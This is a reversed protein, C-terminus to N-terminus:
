VWWVLLWWRFRWCFLLYVGVVTMWWLYCVLWVLLCDVVVVLCLCVFMFLLCFWWDFSIVYSIVLGCIYRTFRCLVLGCIWCLWVFHWVIWFLVCVLDFGFVREFFLIYFEIRCCVWVRFGVLGFCLGLLIRNFVCFGILCWDLVVWFGPPRVNALIVLDFSILICVLRFLCWRVLLAFCGLDLCYAFKVVLYWFLVLLM